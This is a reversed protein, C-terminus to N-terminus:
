DTAGALIVTTGDERTKELTGTLMTLPNDGAQPRERDMRVTSLENLPYTVREHVLSAVYLSTGEGDGQLHYATPWVRLVWRGEAKSEPSSKDEHILVLAPARGNHTRPLTPLADAPTQGVLFGTLTVLSWRPARNYGLPVLAAELPTLDGAWQMILPEGTEGNLEIRAAPFKRWGDAKWDQATMVIRPPQPAYAQIAHGFNQHIHFGGAIAITISVLAAFLWRGIKENHVSGFIFAFAAVMATGFVLGGIVDSAWHAGLYVRSFAIAVIYAIAVSFVGAKVLPSRDHAVLVAAVGILVTNITAHGSPFSFADAGSYLDIPRSRQFLAKFLPVFIAAAAMAILFGTGRRWARRFFLYGAVVAVTITIVRGDGLMTLFVMIEDGLPSRLSLFLNRIAIDAREVGNGPSIALAIAAFSPVTLLLLFASILMGSSRPHDPHFMDALRQSLRDPRRAFWSVVAARSGAFLPLVIIILWRSLIVTVFLIVVLVGLAAALRGSVEGIASFATGAIFGPGLHAITWFFASVVNIVTFRWPDMGVMGAIGPVIAKIGPVFRGIFVSKGGHLRFYDEGREVLSRYRAFPWITKLRGKYIHGVWYSIADGTIAGLMTWIFITGADLKGLGVLTGAGVLVVTSPVVLGIIFLAEGMAILFVVINAIIPHDGIFSVLQNLLDTVPAKTKCSAIPRIQGHNASMYTNSPSGGIGFVFNM